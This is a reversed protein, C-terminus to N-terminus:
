KKWRAAWGWAEKNNICVIHELHYLYTLAENLMRDGDYELM